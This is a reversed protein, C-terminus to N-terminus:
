FLGDQAGGGLAQLLTVADTALRAVINGGSMPRAAEFYKCFQANSAAFIQLNACFTFLDSLDSATQLIQCDM